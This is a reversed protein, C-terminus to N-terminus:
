LWVFSHTTHQAVTFQYELQKASVLTV